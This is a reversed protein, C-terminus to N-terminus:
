EAMSSGVSGSGDCNPIAGQKCDEPTTGGVGPTSSGAREVGHVVAGPAQPM